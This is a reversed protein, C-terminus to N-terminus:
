LMQPSDSNSTFVLSPEPRWPDFVLFFHMLCIVQQLPNFCIDIICVSTHKFGIGSQPALNKALHKAPNKVLNKQGWKKAMNKDHNKSVPNRLCAYLKVIRSPRLIVTRCYQPAFFHIEVTRGPHLSVLLVDMCSVKWIYFHDM